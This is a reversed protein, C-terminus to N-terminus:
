IKCLNKKENKEYIMQEFIAKKQIRKIMAYTWNNRKGFFESKTQTIFKEGIYSGEWYNKLPGFNELTKHFQLM